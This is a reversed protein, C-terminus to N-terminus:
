AASAVLSDGLAALAPASSVGFTLPMRGPRRAHHGSRFVRPAIHISDSWTGVIQVPVGEPDRVYFGYGLNQDPTLRDLAAPGDRAVVAIRAM